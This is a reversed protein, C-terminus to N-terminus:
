LTHINVKYNETEMTQLAESFAVINKLVSSEVKPAHKVLMNMFSEFSPTKVYRGQFRSRLPPDLANGAYKPVKM